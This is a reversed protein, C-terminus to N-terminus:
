FDSCCIVFMSGNHERDKEFAKQPQENCAPYFGSEKAQSEPGVMILTCDIMGAKDEM